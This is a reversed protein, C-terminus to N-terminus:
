GWIDYKVIKSVEKLNVQKNNDFFSNTIPVFASFNDFVAICVLKTHFIYIQQHDFM